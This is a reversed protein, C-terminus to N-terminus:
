ETDKEAAQGYLALARARQAGHDVIPLPYDACGLHEREAPSLKWPTHIQALPVKVLEPVWRRVYAGDPDFKEGQNTPNFIRFYPQADTGTGAAWQWGGNNAAQDGDVLQQMFYREGWRWDILLDKTLFSAVVMRGRNHMWAEANMQRMAADVVPYGTRGEKWAAFLAEDNEWRLSDFKPRFAGETVHPFAHLIQLYFDHWALENLFGAAGGQATQHERRAEGDAPAPDSPSSGARRVADVVTRMGLTGLHLHRSLRSTANEALRDRGASYGGLKNECFERLMQRARDEGGCEFEQATRVGLADATPLPDGHASAPVRVQAPAPLPADAPRDFWRRKYPGFVTYPHGDASLVEGPEFLAIDKFTEVSKGLRGLADAVQEDRRRGHPEFERHHFVGDADFDQVAQLLAEPTRGKRVILRGTRKQLNADLVRLADLLFTVRAPGTDPRRLIVDDLIFLPVVQEAQACAHHLSANDAVRLDRRFWVILTKYKKAAPM